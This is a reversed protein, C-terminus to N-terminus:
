NVTECGRLRDKPNAFATDDGPGCNIRDKNEGRARIVDDGSGASVHDRGPGPKVCDDGGKARIHDAGARGIVRESDDTGVLVDDGPTGGLVTTRCEAPPPEGHAPPIATDAVLGWNGAEDRYLVALHTANGIAGSGFQRAVSGGGSGAADDAIQTGDGSHAIPGNSVLM